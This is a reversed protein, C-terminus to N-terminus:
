PGLLKPQLHRNRQHLHVQPVLEHFQYDLRVVLGQLHHLQAPVHLLIAAPLFHVDAAVELEFARLDKISRISNKM